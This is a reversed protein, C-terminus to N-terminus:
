SACDRLDGGHGHRGDQGFSRGMTNYEPTRLASDGDSSYARAPILAVLLSVAVILLALMVHRQKRLPLEEFKEVNSM